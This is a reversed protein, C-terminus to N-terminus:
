AELAPGIFWLGHSASLRGRPVVTIAVTNTAFEGLFTSLSILFVALPLTTGPSTMAGSPLTFTLALDGEGLVTPTTTPSTKGVM